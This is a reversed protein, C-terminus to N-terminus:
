IGRTKDLFERMTWGVRTAAVPELRRDLRPDDSRALCIFRNGFLLAHRSQNELIDLLIQASQRDVDVFADFDDLALALGTDAPDLGYDGSAVDSLCDNLADFNRGFYDPFDLSEALQQFMEANSTWTSASLRVVRFGLDMLSSIGDNWVSRSWALSVGGNLLLSYDYRGFEDPGFAAM